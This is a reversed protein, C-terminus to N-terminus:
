KANKWKEALADVLEEVTNLKNQQMFKIIKIAHERDPGASPKRANSLENKLGAVASQKDYTYQLGYRTQDARKSLQSKDKAQLLEMWPMLYGRHRSSYRNTHEQGTLISTDGLQSTDLRRWAEKNTYFYVPINRKKAAIIAQRAWARVKPDAEEVCLIHVGIVGDIPVTPDRSFIRDEAEHAKHHSQLPDRNGWYDVSKAKYHQNYWNGDLVFMTASDGIYEHYGGLKTRTTSLFYPHGKPAYQQEVSGLTSSLQFEGTTLIKLASHLSTYHYAIRSLSETIFESARM